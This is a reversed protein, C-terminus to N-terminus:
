PRYVPPRPSLTLRPRGDVRARLEPGVMHVDVIQQFDGDLVARGVQVELDAAVRHHADAARQHGAVSSFRSSWSSTTAILAATM